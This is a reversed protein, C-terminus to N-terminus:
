EMMKLVRMMGHGEGKEGDSFDKIIEQARIKLEKYVKISLSKSTPKNKLQNLVEAKCIASSGCGTKLINRIEMELARVNKFQAPNIPLSKKLQLNSICFGTGTDQWGGYLSYGLVNDESLSVRLSEKNGYEGNRSYAPDYLRFLILTKKM